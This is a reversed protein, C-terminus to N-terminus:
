DALEGAKRQIASWYYTFDVPKVAALGESFPTAVAYDPEIVIAGTPDIYGSHDRGSSQAFTVPARGESFDGLEYALPLTIIKQGTRDIYGRISPGTMSALGESMDGFVCDDRLFLVNGEKDIFGHKAEDGAGLQVAAVGEHFDRADDFSPPIVTKGTTDIYGFTDDSWVRALGESFDAVLGVDEREIVPTGAANIFLVQGPLRVRALGDRFPGAEVFRPEIVMEGRINVYGWLEDPKVASLGGSFPEVYEFAPDLLYAGTKDILGFQRNVSVWAVGNAFPMATDFAPRIVFVEDKDIYGTKNRQVVAALGESFSAGHDFRPPVVLKGATDIYGYAGLSRVYQCCAPGFIALLVLVGLAVLWRRRKRKAM